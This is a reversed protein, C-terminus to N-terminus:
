STLINRIKSSVLLKKKKANKCAGMLSVLGSGDLNMECEHLKVNDM